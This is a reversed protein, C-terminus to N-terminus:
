WKEKRSTVSWTSVNKLTTCEAMPLLFTELVSSLLLRQVEGTALSNSAWVFAHSRFNVIKTKRLSSHLSIIMLTAACLLARPRLLSRGFRLPQCSQIVSARDSPLSMYSCSSFQISCSTLWNLICISIPQPVVLLCLFPERAVPQQCMQNVVRVPDFFFLQPTPPPPILSIIM